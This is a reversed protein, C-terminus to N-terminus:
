GTDARVCCAPRTGSGCRRRVPAVRKAPRRQRPTSSGDWSTNRQRLATGTAGARLYPRTGGCGAGHAATSDWRTTIIAVNHTIVRTREVYGPREFAALSESLTRKRQAIDTEHFTLMNLANGLAPSDGCEACALAGQPGRPRGGRRPGPPERPRSLGVHAHGEHTRQGLAKFMARRRPRVGIARRAELDRVSVGSRGARLMAMPRATGTGSREPGGCARREATTVADRARGARIEVM